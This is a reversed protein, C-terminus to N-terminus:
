QEKEIASKIEKLANIEATHTGRGRELMEILFAMQGTVSDLSKPDAKDGIAKRYSKVLDKVKAERGKADKGFEGKLLHSLLTADPLHLRKWLDDSSKLGDAVEIIKDLYASVEKVKEQMRKTTKTRSDALTALLAELTIWNLAPYPDLQGAKLAAKTNAKEYYKAAEKM